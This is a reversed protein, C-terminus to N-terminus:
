EFFTRNNNYLILCSTKFMVPWSNIKQIANPKLIKQLMNKTWILERRRPLKGTTQELENNSVHVVLAVVTVTNAEPTSLVPPTKMRLYTHVNSHTTVNTHNHNTNYTSNENFVPTQNVFRWPAGPEQMSTMWFSSTFTAIRKCHTKSGNQLDSCGTRHLWGHAKYGLTLTRLRALPSQSSLGSFSEAYNTQIEHHALKTKGKHSKKKLM